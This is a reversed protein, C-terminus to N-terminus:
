LVRVRVRTQNPTSTRAAPPHRAINASRRTEPSQSNSAQLFSVQDELQGLDVVRDEVLDLVQVLVLDLVQILVLDLVQIPVLDLVEVVLDLVQIQVLDLM